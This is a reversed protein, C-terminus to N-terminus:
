PFTERLGVGYPWTLGREDDALPELTALQSDLLTAPMFHGARASLRERLVEAPVDLHLFTTRPDGGRLVDRHARRLASCAVVVSPTTRLVDAVAALWPLRDSERLPLGSTMRAVNAPPHLDDADVFRAGLTAALAAGVTSKGCGSVGMVVLSPGSVPDSSM